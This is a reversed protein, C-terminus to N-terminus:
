NKFNYIKYVDRYSLLQKKLRLNVDNHLDILWNVLDLKSNLKIENKRIYYNYHKNCTNCPIKAVEKTFFLFLLRKVRTDIINKPYNFTINHLIEWCKNFYNGKVESLEEPTLKKAKCPCNYKRINKFVLQLENFALKLELVFKKDIDDGKFRNFLTNINNDM